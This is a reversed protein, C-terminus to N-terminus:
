LGHTAVSTVIVVVVLADHVQGLVAVVAVLTVDSIINTIVDDKVTVDDFIISSVSRLLNTVM